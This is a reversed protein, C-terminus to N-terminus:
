RLLNLLEVPRLFGSSRFGRSKDQQMYCSVCSGVQLKCSTVLSQLTLTHQKRKAEV